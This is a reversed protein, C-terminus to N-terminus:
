RRGDYPSSHGPMPKPHTSHGSPSPPQAPREGPTMRDSNPIRHMQNRRKINRRNIEGMRQAEALNAARGQPTMWWPKADDNGHEYYEYPNATVAQRALPNITRNLFVWTNHNTPWYRYAEAYAIGAQVHDRSVQSLVHGRQLLFLALEKEPSLPTFWDNIEVERPTSPRPWTMYFEDPDISFGNGAGDFNFTDRWDPNPHDEGVWRCFVHEKSNVLKVPYGLRRGVAVYLVPLSVCNDGFAQQADEHDLLGHIFTEKSTTFPPVAQDQPVFGAHYHVGIDQQLVDVLWAARFRAESHKYHEAHDKFRPDTLRYLHRETEYRVKEAWQDIRALYHRIIQENLQEAGLLGEATLLNMRAIDLKALDDPSLALLEALTQPELRNQSHLSDAVVRDPIQKHNPSSARYPGATLWATIGIAGIALVLGAQLIWKVSSSAPRFAVASQKAERRRYKNRGSRRM